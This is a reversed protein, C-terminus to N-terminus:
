RGLLAKVAIAEAAEYVAAIALVPLIVAYLRFNVAAGALYAERASSFGARSPHILWKGWLCSGFMALIYGQGELLLCLSHPIMMLSLTRNTPALTLGWMVARYFGTAVGSYPILFSPLTIWAFAGLISNVLFTELAAAVMNGSQYARAVHSLFGHALNAKLNALLQQQLFPHYAVFISAILMGLYYAANLGVYLRFNSRIAALCSRIIHM